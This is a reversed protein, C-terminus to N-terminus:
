ECRRKEPCGEFGKDRCWKRPRTTCEGSCPFNDCIDSCYYKGNNEYQVCEQYEDCASQCPDGLSCGAELDVKEEDSVADSWRRALGCINTTLTGETITPDFPNAAELYLGLIYEEGIELSVGCVSEDGGTVFSIQDEGGTDGQFVTTVDVTYTVPDNIDAQDSRSLATARIVLETEASSLGNKRRAQYEDCASQCPDDVSCGAELDAKEEDSVADSWRRALGCINTTLTGETITPDFPNAAELYLGLIYEEGIELSVGCVAEDGGTVFSIQDQGGTDGQFVTTVDVTYTVSDNIDASRFPPTDEAEFPAVERLEKTLVSLAKKAEKKAATGDDLMGIHLTQQKIAEKLRKVGIRSGRDCLKWKRKAVEALYGTVDSSNSDYLRASEAIAEGVALKVDGADEVLVWAYVVLAAARAENLGPLQARHALHLRAPAGTIPAPGGAAFVAAAEAATKAADRAMTLREQSSLGAAEIETVWVRKPKSAHAKVHEIIAAEYAGNSDYMELALTSDLPDDHDPFLLLGYVCALIDSVSTNPTWSRDFIAHCVRGHSNINCHRIPTVFRVKPAVSPYGSPFFVSLMWCGGGYPTGAPGSLIVKWFFMNEDSPFVEFAEHPTEMMNKMERQVRRLREPHGAEGGGSSGSSSAAGGCGGGGSANDAPRLTAVAAALPKCRSKIMPDEKITATGETDHAAAVRESSLLMGENSVRGAKSTPRQRARQGASLVTEQENLRLAARLTTPHFAYGSTALSLCKLRLNKEKGVTISDVIVGVKQLRGCVGHATTSSKTDNGDSLVMIRLVPEEEKPVPVSGGGSSKEKKKREALRRKAGGRWDKMWKELSTCAQSLADWLSTDGRHCLADVEDRFNELLATPECNVSVEWGFSILGVEQALDYAQVRNIYAHFLQKVADLRTLTPKSNESRRQYPDNWYVELVCLGLPGPEELYRAPGAHRDAPLSGNSFRTGSRVGDGVDKLGYWLQVESPRRDLHRAWLRLKLSFVSEKRRSLLFVDKHKSDHIKVAFSGSPPGEIDVAVVVDNERLAPLSTTRLERGDHLLRILSPCVTASPAPGGPTSSSGGAETDGPPGPAIFDGAKWRSVLNKLRKLENSGGRKNVKIKVSKNLYKFTVEVMDTAGSSPTNGNDVVEPHNSEVVWDQIRSKLARNCTVDESAMAQGTMPSTPPRSDRRCAEFWELIAHREYSHGDAAVVPDMVLAQTIPCLFQRPAWESADQPDQSGTDKFQGRKLLVDMFEKRFRRYVKTAKKAEVWGRSKNPNFNELVLEELVVEPYLCWPNLPPWPGYRKDVLCAVDQLQPLCPHALLASLLLQKRRLCEAPTDEADEQAASDSTDESGSEMESGSDGTSMGDDSGDYGQDGKDGEEDEDEEEEEEEDDVEMTDGGGGGSRGGGGGGGGLGTGTEHSFPPLDDWDWELKEPNRAQREKEREDDSDVDEEFGPPGGMSYSSDLCVMVVERAVRAASAAEEFEGGGPLGGKSKRLVDVCQALVQADETSTSGGKLPTFLHLSTNVAKGKGTFVCLYGDRDCTLSPCPGTSLSLPAVVRLFAQNGTRRVCASWDVLSLWSGPGDDEGDDDSGYDEDRIRELSALSANAVPATEVAGSAIPRTGRNGKRQRPNSYRLVALKTAFPCALLLRAAPEWPVLEVTKTKSTPVGSGDGAAGSGVISGVAAGGTEDNACLLEERKQQAGGTSYVGDLLKGDVRLRVAHKAELREVLRCCQLSVSEVEVGPGPSVVAAGPGATSGATSGAASGSQKMALERARERQADARSSSARSVLWSFLTRSGELVRMDALGGPVMERALGWLCQVLCACEADTVLEGEGLMDLCLAAPPFRPSLLAMLERMLWGVMEGDGNDDGSVGGRHFHRTSCYGRGMRQLEQVHDCLMYAGSLFCAKGAISDDRGHVQSLLDGPGSSSSAAPVPRSHWCLSTGFVGGRGSLHQTDALEAASLPSRTAYFVAYVRVGQRLLGWERLGVGDSKGTSRLPYLTTTSVTGGNSVGLPDAGSVGQEEVWLAVTMRASSASPGHEGGDEDDSEPPRPWRYARGRSKAVPATVHVVLGAGSYIEDGYQHLWKQFCGSFRPKRKDFTVRTIRSLSMKLARSALRKLLALCFTSKSVFVGVGDEGRLVMGNTKLVVRVVDEGRAAAADGAASAAAVLDMDDPRAAAVAAAAAAAEAAAAFVTDAKDQSQPCFRVDVAGGHGLGYHALSMGDFSAKEGLPEAPEMASGGGGGDGGSNGTGSGGGGDPQPPPVIWIEMRDGPLQLEKSLRRRLDGLSRMQQQEQQEQEQRKQQQPQQQEGGAPLAPSPTQWDTVAESVPRRNPISVCGMPQGLVLVRVMWCPIDNASVAGPGVLILEEGDELRCGSGGLVDDPFCLFGEAGDGSLLVSQSSGAASASGVSAQHQQRMLVQGHPLVFEGTSAAGGAGVCAGEVKDDSDGPQFSPTAVAAAAAVVKDMSAKPNATNDPQTASAAADASAATAAAAAAVSAARAVMRWLDRVTQAPDADIPVTINPAVTVKIKIWAVPQATASLVADPTYPIDQKQAIARKLDRLSSDTFVTVTGEQPGRKDCSAGGDGGGTGGSSRPIGAVTFSVDHPVQPKGKAKGKGDGNDKDSNASKANSADPAAASVSAPVAPSGTAVGGGDGGATSARGTEADLMALFTTEGDSDILDSLADDSDLELTDALPDAGSSGGGGGGAVGGAAAKKPRERIETVM